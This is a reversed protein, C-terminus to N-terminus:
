AVVIARCHRSIDLRQRGDIARWLRFFSRQVTIGSELLPPIRRRAQRDSPSRRTMVHLRDIVWYLIKAVVMMRDTNM